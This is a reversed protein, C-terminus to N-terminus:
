TNAHPFLLKQSLKDPSSSIIEQITLFPAKNMFEFFCDQGDPENINPDQETPRPKQHGIQDLDIEQFPNALLLLTVASQLKAPLTKEELISWGYQRALHQIEKTQNVLTNGPSKPDLYLRADSLSHDTLEKWYNFRAILPLMDIRASITLHHKRYFAALDQPKWTGIQRLQDAVGQEVSANHNLQRAHNRSISEVHYLLPTALALGITLAFFGPSFFATGLVTLVMIASTIVFLAAIIVKAAIDWLISRRKIERAALDPSERLYHTLVGPSAATSVTM